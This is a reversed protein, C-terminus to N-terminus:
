GPVSTPGGEKPATPPSPEFADGVPAEVAEAHEKTLPSSPEVLRPLVLRALLVQIVAAAPIAILVGALGLLSGGVLLAVLVVFPHLGVAQQMVRPVLFNNEVQQIGLYLLLVIGGKTPSELTALLVAPVAGIWPGILPLAETVGAWVALAVPYRVGLVLLVIFALGGVFLMLIVQGRLWGGLTASIQGSLGRVAARRDPSLRSIVSRDLDETFGIWFVALVFGSFVAIIAGLVQAPLAVVTRLLPALQGALQGLATQLQGDLGLDHLLENLGPLLARAQELFAPAERLLANAQAILPPLVLALLGAIGAVVCLLILLVALSRPVGRGELFAVPPRMTEALTIALFVTILVGTLKLALLVALVAAVLLGVGLAV